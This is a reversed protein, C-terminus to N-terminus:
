KSEKKVSTYLGLMERRESGSTGGWIGYLERIALAHSLCDERVICDNCIKKAQTERRRREDRREQSSHPFFNQSQPGRCAALDRWKSQSVQDGLMLGGVKPVCTFHRIIKYKFSLYNRM